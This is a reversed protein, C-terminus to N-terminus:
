EDKLEEKLSIKKSFSIPLLTSLLSILITSIFVLLPLGFPISLFRDFPIQIINNFGIFSKVILNIILQFLPSLCISVIFALLGIMMNEFLYISNVEDMKAGLCSLIAITKKDESYFSFSVIGMILATGLLAIVLFLEMGTTAARILNILASTRTESPHDFVFPESAISLYENISTIQHYDKLFLRYTYANVPDSSGSDIIRDIWSYDMEYYESLNNLYTISLYDYLAIYSYYIKPTSLFNLDKVVGVVKITQDYIFYDEIVPTFEDNTYYPYYCEHHIKLEKGIPSINYKKKFDNNAKENILVYDLSDEKPVDGELLLGNDFYDDFFSYICEYTYDKLEDKEYIIKSYNPVLGDLNIDIEFQPLNNRISSIEEISPRSNRVISLGGNKTETKNEKTITLNGYDIQKYCEDKISNEANFSFGIILFSATLGIILSIISFINRKRHKKINTFALHTIWSSKMILGGKQPYNLLREM